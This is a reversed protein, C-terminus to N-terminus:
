LIIDQFRVNGSEKRSDGNVIPTGAPYTHGPFIRRRGQQYKLSCLKRGYQHHKPMREMFRFLLASPFNGSVPNVFLVSTYVFNLYCWKYNTYDLSFVKLNNIKHQKKFILSCLCDKLDYQFPIQNTLHCGIYSKRITSCYLIVSYQVM